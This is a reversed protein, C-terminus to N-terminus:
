KKWSILLELKDKDTVKYELKTLEQKILEKYELEDETLTLIIETDVTLLKSELKRNIRYRVVCLKNHIKEQTQRMVNASPLTNDPFVFKNTLTDDLYVLKGGIIKLDQDTTIFFNLVPENNHYVDVCYIDDKNYCIYHEKTQFTKYYKEQYKLLNKTTTIFTVNHHNTTSNIYKWIPCDILHDISSILRTVKKSM